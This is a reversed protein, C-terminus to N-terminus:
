PFEKGTTSFGASQWVGVLQPHQDAELQEAGQPSLVLTNLRIRLGNDVLQFAGRLMLGGVLSQLALNLFRGPPKANRCRRHPRVEQRHPEPGCMVPKISEERGPDGAKLLLVATCETRRGTVHNPNGLGRALRRPPSKPPSPPTERNSRSRCSRDRRW